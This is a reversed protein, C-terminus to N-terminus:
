DGAAVACRILVLSAFKRMDSEKRLKTVSARNSCRTLGMAGGRGNPRIATFVPNLIADPLPREFNM